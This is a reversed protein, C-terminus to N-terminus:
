VSGFNGYSAVVGASEHPGGFAVVALGELLEEVQEAGLTAGLAAQDAGVRGLPDGGAGQIGALVRREAQVREVDHAPGGLGGVDRTGAM